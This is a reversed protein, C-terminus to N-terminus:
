EVRLGLLSQLRLCHSYLTNGFKTAPVAMVGVSEPLSAPDMGYRQVLVQRVDTWSVVGHPVHAPVGIFSGRQGSVVDLILAADEDTTPRLVCLMALPKNVCVDHLRRGDGVDRESVRAAMRRYMVRRAKTQARLTGPPVRVRGNRHRPSQVGASVVVTDDVGDASSSAASASTSGAIAGVTASPPPALLRGSAANARRVFAATAAAARRSEVRWV